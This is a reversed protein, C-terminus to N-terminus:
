RVASRLEQAYRRLNDAEKYRKLSELEEALHDLQRAIRRMAAQETEAAPPLFPTPAPNHMPAHSAPPVLLPLLNSGGGSPVPQGPFPARMGEQGPPQSGPFGPIGSPFHGPHQNPHAHPHPFTNSPATPAQYPGSPSRRNGQPQIPVQRVRGLAEAFLQQSEAPSLLDSFSEGVGGVRQRIERIAAEMEDPQPQEAARPPGAGGAVTPTPEQHLRTETRSPNWGSWLQSWLSTSASAVPVAHLPPADGMQQSSGNSCAPPNLAPLPLSQAALSEVTGMALGLFLFVSLRTLLRTSPPLSNWSPFNM